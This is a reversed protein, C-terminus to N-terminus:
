STFTLLRAYNGDLSEQFKNAVDSIEAPLVGPSAKSIPLLVQQVAARGRPTIAARITEYMSECAIIGTEILANATRQFGDTHYGLAQAVEHFPIAKSGTPTTRVFLYNLVELRKRIFHGRETRADERTPQRRHPWYVFRNGYIPLDGFMEVMGSRHLAKVVNYTDVGHSSVYDDLDTIKVPHNPNSRADIDILIHSRHPFIEVHLVNPSIAAGLNLHLDLQEQLGFYSYIRADEALASSTWARLTRRGDQVPQRDALDHPFLLRYCLGSLDNIPAKSIELARETIPFEKHLKERMQRQTLPLDELLELVVFARLPDLAFILIRTELDQNIM